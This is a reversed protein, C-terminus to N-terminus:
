RLSLRVRARGEAGLRVALAFGGTKRDFAVGEEGV